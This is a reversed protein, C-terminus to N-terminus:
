QASVSKCDCPAHIHSHPHKPAYSILKFCLFALKQKKYKRKAFTALPKFSRFYIGFFFLFKLKKKSEVESKKRVPFRAEKEKLTPNLIKYKSFYKM